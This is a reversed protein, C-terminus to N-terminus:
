QRKVKVAIDNTFAPFKLELPGSAHEKTEQKVIGGKYCDWFEVAYKGPPLDPVIATVGEHVPREGEPPMQRMAADNYLWGYVGGPWRYGYAQLLGSTNGATIPLLVTTGKMGRRDEGRVYASFARYYSYLNKSDVVDYWWFLPTGMGETMWTAWMGCHVDAVLMPLPAADFDGGYETIWFPKKMEGSLQGNFWTQNDLASQMYRMTTPRYVDTCVYDLLPGGEPANERALAVDIWKYDTAYHNTVPHDYADCQKLHNIMERAWGQATATRHFQGLRPHEGPRNKFNPTTGAVLDYESVLEWGLLTSDSGWRAAIYRLKNRHWRRCTPDTFFSEATEAVGMDGPSGLNYPNDQWEWDCWCSFKGHNDLVLHVYIGHERAMKLLTDLKWAHQLSYRTAGYYDRWRSTWEIGLWWAAMWVECTNEGAKQMKDFMEAYMPLGRGAPPEQKMILSWCRIDVPSSINHGVPYFFEGNEFELFRKDKQAVRIFGRGDAPVCMFQQVPLEIQENKLKVRLTYKHLGEERPTIRVRWEPRGMPKLDDEEFRDERDYDQYWFGIHETKKGSKSEVVCTIDAYDPDFPNDVQRNLEFRLTLTDLKRVQPMATAAKANLTDAASAPPDTRMNIVRIPEEKYSSAQKALDKLNQLREANVQPPQANTAQDVLGKFRQPRTWGRFNRLMVRGTFSKDGYFTIGITRVKTAQNDDWQGLHGLPTVDPSDGRIDATVTTWEGPVLAARTRAQYWLGHRDKLFLLCGVFGPCEKPIKVDYAMARVGMLRRQDSDGTSGERMITAPEPFRVPISLANGLRKEETEVVQLAVPENTSAVPPTPQAADKTIPFTAPSDAEFTWGQADQEFDYIPDRPVPYWGTAPDQFQKLAEEALEFAPPRTGKARGMKRLDQVVLGLMLVVFGLSLLVLGKNFGGESPISAAEAVKPPESPAPPVLVPPNQPGAIAPPEAVHAAGVAGQPAQEQPAAPSQAPMEQSAPSSGASPEDVPKPSKEDM